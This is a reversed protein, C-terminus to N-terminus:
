FHRAGLAHVTGAPIFVCDGTQTSFRHLCSETQGAAMAAQLTERDVGDRLGAYIVSGPDAHVVVWAETKGLDPPELQAAQRDDPHVQVSLSQNADLFKFLLPFQRQPHHRGFLAPGYDAVLDGLPMRLEGFAVVSQDLGHDVIEWSEAYDEGSGIPKNLVTGLRRGGWIYRRFLPEFRLPYLNFDGMRAVSIGEFTVQVQSLTVEVLGTATVRIPCLRWGSGDRRVSTQLQRAATELWDSSTSVLQTTGATAPSRVQGDIEGDCGVDM